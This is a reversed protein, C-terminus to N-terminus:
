ASMADAWGMVSPRTDGIAVITADERVPGLSTFQRLMQIGLNPRPTAFAGTFDSMAALGQFQEQEEGMTPFAPNCFSMTDVYPGTRLLIEDADTQDPHWSYDIHRVGEPNQVCPDDAHEARVDGKWVDVMRIVDVEADTRCFGKRRVAWHGADMSVTVGLTSLLTKALEITRPTVVRQLVGNSQPTYTAGPLGGHGAQLRRGDLHPELDSGAVEGLSIVMSDHIVGCIGYNREIRGLPTTWPKWLRTTATRRLLVPVGRRYSGAGIEM